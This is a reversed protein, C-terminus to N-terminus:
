KGGNKAEEVEEGEGDLDLLDYEEDTLFGDDTSDNDDIELSEIDDLLHQDEGATAGPPAVVPTAISSPADTVSPAVESTNHYTSSAPSEKELTPFIMQSEHVEPVSTAATSTPEEISASSKSTSQDANIDEIHESTPGEPEQVVPEPIYVDIDCWLRHGFPINDASKLRWYSISKGIREPAKMTVWFAAEEGVNVPQNIVNSETASNLDMVSSPRKNDVNLMNDGGVYRVSCGAPWVNPGPNRMVWVQQFTSGIKIKSGDPTADCLFHAHLIPRTPSGPSPINCPEKKIVLQPKVVEEKIIPEKIQVQEVVPKKESIIEAPQETKVEAVTHVQTAANASPAAPKTETSKSSTQPAKDGMTTMPSGDDKEGLTTVSVNRVPTRFKILPHTRNHRNTPLAECRACFDTDHCVACKFRDGVIYSRTRTCLPGDCSIGFHVAPRVSPTELPEYIPVFRHGPHNLRSGKVCESCYDFDPCQLCKNRVGYVPKDCGDCLAHHRLNRGPKYLSKARGDIAATEIVPAFGHSAAHGHKMGVFCPICLDYDECALCTVFKSEEFSTVCSNCTRTMPAEEFTEESKVSWADPAKWQQVPVPTKKAHTETTSSIVKGNEITRKILFHGEMECHEGKSICSKCIDYDGMKCVSCHWHDNPITANCKDCCVTFASALVPFDQDVARLPITQNKCEALTSTESTDHAVFPEPVQAEDEVTAQLIPKTAAPKPSLSPFHMMPVEPLNLNSIAAQKNMANVKDSMSTMVYRSYLDTMEQEQQKQPTVLLQPQATTQESRVEQAIPVIPEKVEAAKEAELSITDMETARIRLKLKAKAARYLQKYVSSISPDLTIYTGASDSYRELILSKTSPTQLLARIKEPFTLSNLDRLPLKFRRNENALQLKITILVDPSVPM